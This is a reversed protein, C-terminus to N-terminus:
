HQLPDFRQPELRARLSSPFFDVRLLCSLDARKATLVVDVADTATEVRRPAVSGHECPIDAAARFLPRLTANLGDDLFQQIAHGDGVHRDIMRKLMFCLPGTLECSSVTRRMGAYTFRVQKGDIRPKVQVSIVVSKDSVFPVTAVGESRFEIVNKNPLFVLSSRLLAFRYDRPVLLRAVKQAEADMLERPLRLAAQGQRTVHLGLAGQAPTSHEGGFGLSSVCLATLWLKIAPRNM